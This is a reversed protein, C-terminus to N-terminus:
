GWRFAAREKPLQRWAEDAAHRDNAPASPLEATLLNTGVAARVQQVPTFTAIRDYTSIANMAEVGKPRSAARYGPLRQVRQALEDPAV